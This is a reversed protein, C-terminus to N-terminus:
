TRTILGFRNSKRKKIKKRRLITLLYLFIDFYMIFKLALLYQNNKKDFFFYDSEYKFKELIHPSIVLYKSVKKRKKPNNEFSAYQNNNVVM